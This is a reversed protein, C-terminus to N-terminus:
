GSRRDRSRGSDGNRGHGALRGAQRGPGGGAAAREAADRVPDTAVVLLEDGRRLVTSPCRYSARGTGSSWPSRPARRCGCSARGRRRADALGDPIAVSLLHGRLRELPASEIGLDAAETATASSCSARWGPCPRGRSWPTSSSWCSSSTSSRPRQGRDRVGDPHDGPHHARRRAPRGLVDPGAGALAGPVAAPQRLGGAAAGGDDAGPRHGRAPWFDDVLEHPTVLLGLLVFMGIQAIWGLGDAFGRTAPWHPLKANGSCWRPWTSPSSAAATRWRAPRTRRSRSRWSPSRTSAPPPCRWTGCAAPASGASRSASPPASPWSWRSRASCCTGTRRGPRRHLLRRGPHRRPRRQLRVRGGPRGHGPLPAPGQAARLLRGGRRDLLRGRRHHLAQRWELGVLYHAGAATVGVSVAVGVLSLVIAAPLAPKIEKWKTGLGGEALIM